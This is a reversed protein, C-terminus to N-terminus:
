HYSSNISKQNNCTANAYGTLRASTGNTAVDDTAATPPQRASDSTLCITLWITPLPCQARPTYARTFQTQHPPHDKNGTAGTAISIVRNFTNRRPASLGGVASERGGTRHGGTHGVATIALYREGLPLILLTPFFYIQLRIMLSVFFLHAEVLLYEYTM